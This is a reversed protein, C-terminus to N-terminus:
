PWGLFWRNTPSQNLYFRSMALAEIHGDMFALNCRRGHRASPRADEDDDLKDGPAVMKLTDPLPTRFDDATGLDGLMITNCRSSFSALRKPSVKPSDDFDVFARENLGCSIDRSLKDSACLHIKTSRLYPDLLQPWHTEEGNSYKLAVPPLYDNEDQSYMLIALSQQRANSLCATQRAKLQAKSLAPLM